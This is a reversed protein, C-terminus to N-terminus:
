GPHAITEDSVGVCGASDLGPRTGLSVGLRMGPPTWVRAKSSVGLCMGPPTWAWLRSIRLRAYTAQLMLLTAVEEM